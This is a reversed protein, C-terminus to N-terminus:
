PRKEAYIRNKLSASEDNNFKDRSYELGHNKAFDVLYDAIKKTNGSGHPIKCIKEFFRIPLEAEKYEPINLM